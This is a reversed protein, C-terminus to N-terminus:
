LVIPGRVLVDALEELLTHKSITLYYNSEKERESM